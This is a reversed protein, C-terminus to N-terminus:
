GGLLKNYKNKEELTLTAKVKPHRLLLAVLNGKIIKDPIKSVRKILENNRISPDIPPNIRSDYLLIKAIEASGKKGKVVSHFLMDYSVNSAFRSDNLLLDVIDFKFNRAAEYLALYGDISPDYRDDDLILEVIEVFGNGAAYAIGVNSPNSNPDLKPNELMMKVINVNGYECAHVFAEGNAYNIDINEKLIYRVLVTNNNFCGWLLALTNAKKKYRVPVLGIDAGMIFAIYAEYYSRIMDQEHILFNLLLGDWGEEIVIDYIKKWNVYKDYETVLTDFGLDRKIESIDM